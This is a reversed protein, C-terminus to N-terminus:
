TKLTFGNNDCSCVIDTRVLIQLRNKSHQRCTHSRSIPIDWKHLCRIGHQALKFLMLLLSKSLHKFHCPFILSRTQVSLVLCVLACLIIFLITIDSVLLDTPISLISISSSSLFLIASAFFSCLIYYSRINPCILFGGFIFHKGVLFPISPFPNVLIKAFFM